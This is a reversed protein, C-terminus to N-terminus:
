VTVFQAVLREAERDIIEPVETELLWREQFVRSKTGDPAFWDYDGIILRKSDVILHTQTVNPLTQIHLFESDAQLERLQALQKQLSAEVDASALGESSLGVYVHVRRRLVTSIAKAFVTYGMSSSLIRSTVVLRSSATTLADSFKGLLSYIPPTFIAANPDNRREPLTLRGVVDAPAASRSTAGTPQRLLRRRAAGRLQVASNDVEGLRRFAARRVGDKNAFNRNHEELPRGDVLFAVQKAGKEGKYALAVAAVFRLPARRVNRISILRDLQKDPRMGALVQWVENIDLDKATPREGFPSFEFHHGADQLQRGTLLQDRRWAYARRLVGDFPVVWTAEACTMEGYNSLLDEGVSTLSLNEEDGRVAGGRLLDALAVRTVQSALGLLASLDDFRTVGVDIMRLCYESILHLDRREETLVDIQALYVPLGIRKYDVLRLGPLNDCHMLNVDDFM